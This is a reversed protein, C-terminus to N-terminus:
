CARIVERTEGNEDAYSYWFSHRKRQDDYYTIPDVKTDFWFEYPTRGKPVGCLAHLCSSKGCGNQGVFVTLPFHFNITTDPELNRYFPFRIFDVYKKLQNQSKITKIVSVIERLDDSM